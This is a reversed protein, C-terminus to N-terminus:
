LIEVDAVVRGYTDRAQVKCRVEKGSLKKDLEAKAKKGAETGLEPADIGAIRVTESENYEKTNKKGVHTVDMEFTDGDVVRTVPGRITDAM